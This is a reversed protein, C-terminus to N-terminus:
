GAAGINNLFMGDAHMEEFQRNMRLIWRKMQADTMEEPNQVSVNMNINAGQGGPGPTAVGGLAAHGGPYIPRSAALSRGLTKLSQTQRTTLVTEGPMLLAPVSDRGPIGGRVEGGDRAKVLRGILGKVLAFMSAIAAPVLAPGIIPIASVASAAGSAAETARAIIVKQATNVAVNLANKGMAAFASGVNEAGSVSSEVAAAFSSGINMAADEAAQRTYEYLAIRRDALAQEQQMKLEFEYNGMEVTHAVRAEAAQRQREQLQEFKEANIDMGSGAAQASEKAGAAAKALAADAARSVDNIKKELAEQAKITKDIETVATNSAQAYESGMERLVSRAAGIQGALGDAGFLEAVSQIGALQGEIGELILRNFEAWAAKLGQWLMQWGAFSRTVLLIAPTLVSNLVKGTKVAFEIINVALLARNQKIWRSMGDIVPGLSEAVPKLISLWVDGIRAGLKTLKDAFQELTRRTKDNKARFELAKQGTLEWAVRTVEMAKKALELAQNFAVVSAGAKSFAQSAKDAATIVIGVKKDTM